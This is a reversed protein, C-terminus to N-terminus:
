YFHASKFKEAFQIATKGNINLTEIMQLLKTRMSSSSPTASTENDFLLQTDPTLSPNGGPGQAPLTGSPTFSNAPICQKLVISLQEQSDVM